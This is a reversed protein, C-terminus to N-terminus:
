GETKGWGGKVMVGRTCRAIIRFREPGLLVGGFWRSVVVLVREAEMAELVGLIKPGAAREGDDDYDSLGASLQGAIRYAWMHHTARALKGDTGRVAAVAAAAEAPTAVTCARAQFVSRHVTVPDDVIWSPPLTPAAAPTPLGVVEAPEASAGNSDSCAAQFLSDDNLVRELGEVFDYLCVDGSWVDGMVRQAIEVARNGSGKPLDSGVAICPSCVKPPSSTPYTSPLLIALTLPTSPLVLAITVDETSGPASHTAPNISLTGPQYIANLASFEDAVSISLKDMNVFTGAGSELYLTGKPPKESTYM